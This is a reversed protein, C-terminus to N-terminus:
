QHKDYCINNKNRKNYHVKIHQEEDGGAMKKRMEWRLEAWSNEGPVNAKYKAWMSTYYHYLQVPDCKKVGPM